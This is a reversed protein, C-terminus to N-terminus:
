AAAALRQEHEAVLAIFADVETTRMLRIYLERDMRIGHVYRAMHKRFLVLGLKEGYYELMAALHRRVMQAKDAFPVQYLDKSQFLWPNGIAGRGIMIADVGTRAFMREIDGVTRVDGNGIVPVRVAQKVEAIADWDARHSYNQDKTRGHVAILAAGSDELVRAVERYNRATADWGLRIKGTVPVRLAAVLASFIRGIQAPDRLLAAGAGRGTVDHVSCGMNVDIIDPGLAELRQAARVMQDVDQGFLQMSVQPREAPDYELRKFVEYNANLIAGAGVFETYSMASGYERCILRYPKDSFGAMPALVLRGYVPVDRVHFCPSATEAMCM